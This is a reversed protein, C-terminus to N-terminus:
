DITQLLIVKHLAGTAQATAFIEFSLAVAAEIKISQKDKKLWFVREPKWLPWFL